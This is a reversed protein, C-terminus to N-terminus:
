SQFLSLSNSLTESKAKAKDKLSKRQEKAYPNGETSKLWNKKKHFPQKNKKIQQYNPTTSGLEASILHLHWQWKM